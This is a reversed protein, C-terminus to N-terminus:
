KLPWIKRTKLYKDEVLFTYLLEWHGFFQDKRDKYAADFYLVKFISALGRVIELSHFRSWKQVIETKGTHRSAIYYSEMTEGLEDFHLVSTFSGVMADGAKANAEVKNEARKGYYHSKLIAEAVNSWWSTLPEFQSQNSVGKLVKFNDYRGKKADAFSDLEKLIAKHISQNPFNYTPELGRKDAIKLAADCLEILNHGYAKLQSKDPFEDNNELAYDCVIILKALREIGISLGFFATYYSGLGDAYSAKSLSTVANCILQQVLKTERHLPTWYPNDWPNSM